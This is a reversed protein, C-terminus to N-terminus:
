RVVNRGGGSGWMPAPAAAGGEWRCSGPAAAEQSICTAVAPHRLVSGHAAFVRKAFALPNWWHFWASVGGDDVLDLVRLGDPVTALNTLAADPNRIVVVDVGARDGLHERIDHCTTLDCDVPDFGGDDPIWPIAQGVSQLEGLLGRAIPPDLLAAGTYGDIPPRRGDDITAIMLAGASAGKSHHISYINSHRNSLDRIFRDLADAVRKTPVRRSSSTSSSGGDITSYDFARVRTPDVGMQDLLADFDDTSGGHGHVVVFLPEDDRRSRAGRVAIGAGVLGLVGIPLSSSRGGSRDPRSSPPDPLATGAATHSPPDLGLADGPALDDADAVFSGLALALGVLTGIM